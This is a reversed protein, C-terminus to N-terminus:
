KAFWSLVRKKESEYPLPAFNSLRALKSDLASNGSDLKAEERKLREVEARAREESKHSAAKDKAPANSKQGKKATLDAASQQLPAMQRNVVGLQNNLALLKANLRQMQAPNRSQALFSQTQMIQSQLTQQQAQLPALQNQIKNLEEESEVPRNKSAQATEKKAAAREHAKDATSKAQEKRDELKTRLREREAKQQAQLETLRSAVASHAEEFDSKYTEALRSLVQNKCQNRLRSDVASPRVLELYGFITGLYRAADRYEEKQTTGSTTFRQSLADAQRLVDAYDGIPIEGWMKVYYATVEPDATELYRTLLPMADRYQHQNVLVLGYAYDLRPDSPKGRALKEYQVRAAAVASPTSKGGLDLLRAVEDTVESGRAANPPGGLALAVLVLVPPMVSLHASNM